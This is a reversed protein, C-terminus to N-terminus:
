YEADIAKEYTISGNPHRTVLKFGHDEYFSAAIENKRSPIYEGIIRSFGRGRCLQIAKDLLHDEVKRGIVRCSALFTDIQGQGLDLIALGVSGEDGFRDRYDLMLVAHEASEVFRALDAVTYRRTTLNFQNTKQTMQAARVLDAGSDIRIDCEIGLEALYGDLDFSQALKKRAMNARYQETKARDETTIAYKGFYVPVVERVFWTQLNEVRDPFEPVAIEPMFKRIAEREVPNDDIFVFSETGLNLLQAVESINEVKPRWNACVAAFDERKLLMSSNREFVEDVDSENNKSAIVLLIGTRQLAKLSRQFDRYCRATGDEGLAIGHCGLEGVVGGWLTNDLDLILVKRSQQAHAALAGRISASLLEFMRATYRIRGAYWMANSILADEGHRRFLLEMDFVVLNSHEKAIAILRQNLSAELCKISDAHTLDAFSLWRSSSLCFSNAVVIKEPHRSCFQELADLFTDCQGPKGGGYFADGMLSDSDFVSIVHSIESASARSNAISLESLMSNYAGPVVEFPKLASVLPQVNVNSLLLFKM